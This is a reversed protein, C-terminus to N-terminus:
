KNENDLKIFLKPKKIFTLVWILTLVVLAPITENPSKLNVAIAGGYYANILFFGINFTKPIIFLVLAITEIFILFNLHNQLGMKIMPEMTEPQQTVKGFITIFIIIYAIIISWNSKIYQM